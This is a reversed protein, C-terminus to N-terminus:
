RLVFNKYNTACMQSYFITCTHLRHNPFIYFFNKGSKKLRVKELQIFPTNDHKGIYPALEREQRHYVQGGSYPFMVHFDEAFNLDQM